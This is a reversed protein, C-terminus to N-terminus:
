FRASSLRYDKVVDNEDFYVILMMSRSSSRVRDGSSGAILVTLYSGRPHIKTSGILPSTVLVVFQFVKESIAKANRTEGPNSTEPKTKAANM